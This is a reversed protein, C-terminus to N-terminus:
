SDQAVPNPGIGIWLPCLSPPLLAPWLNQRSVFKSQQSLHGVQHPSYNLQRHPRAFPNRAPLPRPMEFVVSFDFSANPPGKVQAPHKQSRHLTDASLHPSDITRHPPDTKFNPDGDVVTSPYIKSLANRTLLLCRGSSGRRLPIRFDRSQCNQQCSHPVVTPPINSTITTPRPAIPLAVAYWRELCCVLTSPRSAKTGAWSLPDDCPSDRIM